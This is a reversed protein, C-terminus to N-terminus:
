KILNVIKKFWKKIESKNSFDFKPPNDLLYHIKENKIIKENPLFGRGHPQMEKTSENKDM